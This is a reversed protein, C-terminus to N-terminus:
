WGIRYVEGNQLGYVSKRYAKAVKAASVPDYGQFYPGYRDVSEALLAPSM